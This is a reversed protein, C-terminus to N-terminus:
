LSVSSHFSLPTDGLPGNVFRAVAYSAGCHDVESVPSGHSFRTDFAMLKMFWIKSILM